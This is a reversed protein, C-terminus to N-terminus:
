GGVAERLVERRGSWKEELQETLTLAGDLASELDEGKGTPIAKVSEALVQVDALISLDFDYVRALEAEGIKVADFLGTAGYDTFRIAQSLGDLRRDLRDLDGLAGIQGDDTLDRAKSRVTKKIKGLECAIHERELRDVERRLERDQFGRFGPIKEGLRELFNRQDRAQDYRTTM